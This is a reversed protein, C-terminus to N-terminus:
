YSVEFAVKNMHALQNYGVWNYRFNHVRSNNREMDNERLIYIGKAEM